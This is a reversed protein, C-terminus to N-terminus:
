RAPYMFAMTRIKESSPMSMMSWPLYMEASWGDSAESAAGYWPGDWEVSLRKEPLVIGDVLTGGLNVKFWYSFLGRGSPDIIFSVGDRNITTDRSTLRAVLTDPAQTCKIGFYLGKETYFIRILSPSGPEKLTDPSVVRMNDFGEIQSWISEDLKGDIQVDIALAAFRKFVMPATPDGSSSAEQSGDSAFANSSYTGFSTILLPMLIGLFLQLTLGTFFLRM